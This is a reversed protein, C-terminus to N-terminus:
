QFVMTKIYKAPTIITIVDSDMSIGSFKFTGKSATLILEIALFCQIKMDIAKM